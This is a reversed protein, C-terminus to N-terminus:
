NNKIAVDISNTYFFGKGNKKKLKNKYIIPYQENFYKSNESSLLTAMVQSDFALLTVMNAGDLELFSKYFFLPNPQRRVLDVIQSQTSCM